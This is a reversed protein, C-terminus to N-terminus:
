ELVIEEIEASMSIYLDEAKDWQKEITQDDDVLEDVNPKFARFGRGIAQTKDEPNVIYGAVVVNDIRVGGWDECFSEEDFGRGAKKKTAILVDSDKYTKKKGCIWDVKIGTAKILEYLLMVHDRETTLIMTKRGEQHRIKVLEVILENRANNYLLSKYLKLWNVGQTYRADERHGQIGTLVKTVTFEVDFESSVFDYGLFSHMITELGTGSRTFTATCGMVRLPRMNIIAEVGGENCFEDCEDIILLGLCSRICAPIYMWRTYLCIIIDTDPDIGNTDSTIIEARATTYKHISNKWQKCHGSNHVLVVTTQCFHCSVFLSIATKGAGTRITLATTRHNTLQEIVKDLEDQQKEDRPGLKSRYKRREVSKDNVLEFNEKAWYMPLLIRHKDASFCSVEQMITTKRYQKKLLTNEKYQFTLEQAIWKRQKKSLSELRVAVSM